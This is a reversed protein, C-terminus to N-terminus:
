AFASAFSSAYVTSFRYGKGPVTVIARELRVAKLRKRLRMVSVDITRQDIGGEPWVRIMLEARSHNVDPMEILYKLLRFDRPALDLIKDQGKLTVFVTGEKPDLALLGLRVRGAADQAPRHGRGDLLGVVTRVLSGVNIPKPECHDAGCRQRHDGCARFVDSTLMASPMAAVEAAKRLFAKSGLRDGDIDLLLADPRFESLLREAEDVSAASASLVGCKAFQDCLLQRLQPDALVVLVTKGPGARQSICVEPSAGM